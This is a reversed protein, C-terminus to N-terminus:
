LEAYMCMLQIGVLKFMTLTIITLVLSAISIPMGIYSIYTLAADVRSEECDDERLCIDQVNSSCVLHM